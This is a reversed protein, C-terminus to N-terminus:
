KYMYMTGNIKNLEDFHSPSVNNLTLCCNRSIKSQKKEPFLLFFIFGVFIRGKKWRSVFIGGGSGIRDQRKEACLIQFSSIQNLLFPNNNKRQQHHSPMYLVFPSHCRYDTNCFFLYIFLYTYVCFTISSRVIFLEAV